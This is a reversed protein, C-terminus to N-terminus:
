PQSTTLEHRETIRHEDDVVTLQSSFAQPVGSPHTSTSHNDLRLVFGPLRDPGSLPGFRPSRDYNVPTNAWLEGDLLTAQGTFGWVPGWSRGLALGALILLVGVVAVARIRRM